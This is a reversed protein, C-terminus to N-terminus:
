RHGQWWGSQRSDSWKDSSSGTSREWWRVEEPSAKPAVEPADEPVSTPPGRPPPGRGYASGAPGRPPPGVGYASGESGPPGHSRPQPTFLKPAAKAKPESEQPAPVAGTEIARRMGTTNNADRFFRAVTLVADPMAAPLTDCMHVAFNLPWANHFHLYIGLPVAQIDSSEESFTEIPILRARSCGYLIRMAILVVSFSAPKDEHVTWPRRTGEYWCGLEHVALLFRAAQKSVQDTIFQLRCWLLKDGLADSGVPCWDDFDYSMAGSVKPATPVQGKKSRERAEEPSLTLWGDQWTQLKRLFEVIPKLALDVVYASEIPDAAAPLADRRVGRLLTRASHSVFHIDATPSWVYSEAENRSAEYFEKATAFDRRGQGNGLRLGGSRTGEGAKSGGPAPASWLQRMEQATKDIGRLVIQIQDDLTVCTSQTEGVSERVWSSLVCRTISIACHGEQPDGGVYLPFGQALLSSVGSQSVVGERDSSAVIEARLREFDNKVRVLQRIDTEASLALEIEDLDDQDSDSEESVNLSFEGKELSAWSREM